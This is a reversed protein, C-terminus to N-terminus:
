RIRGGDLRTVAGFARFVRVFTATAPGLYCVYGAHSPSSRKSPTKGLATLRAFREAQKAANEVFAIRRSPICLPYNVPSPIHPGQLSQLQELSFGIWIAADIQHTIWDGVLKQWFQPVLRDGRADTGGPPNVFVRGHWPQVLGNDEATYFRGARVITNAEEHSAPDLDIVGLVQRAAEVYDSPTYWEASDSSHRAATSLGSITSGQRSM